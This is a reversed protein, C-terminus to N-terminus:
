GAVTNMLDVSTVIPTSYGARTAVRAQRSVYVVCGARQFTNCCM